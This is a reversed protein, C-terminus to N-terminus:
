RNLVAEGDSGGGVELNNLAEIEAQLVRKRNEYHAIQRQCAIMQFLWTCCEFSLEWFSM